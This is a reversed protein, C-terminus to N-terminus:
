QKMVLPLYVPGPKVTFSVPEGTPGSVGQDSARVGYDDNVITQGVEDPLVASFWGSATGGVTLTPVTWTVSSGDFGGDSDGYTLGVPLADTVVVGTAAETGVNTVTLTYTVISGAVENTEYTKGVEFRPNLITVPLTFLNNRTDPELDTPSDGYAEVVNAIVDGGEVTETIRAALNFRWRSDSWMTGWEWALVNGPLVDPTWDADWPATARVFSMEPPLTDTIHSGFAEDGEWPWQNRNGFEVTFTVVEGPKPEGGSLWKHVFVDPGTGAQLVDVNDAPDIDGPWPAAVTNTVILGQQGQISADLDVYFGVHATDGSDLQEVWIRYQRQAPEHTRTIWPGHGIWLDGDSTTSVPYTDTLSIDEMRTTGVNRVWIGYFIRDESEWRHYKTV